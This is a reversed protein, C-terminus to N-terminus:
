LTGLIGFLVYMNHERKTISFLIAVALINGLTMGSNQVATAKGRNASIVYDNILPNATICVMSLQFATRLFIFMPESIMTGALPMLYTSVSGLLLLGVITRKRGVIDYIVGSLILAPISFLSAVTAATSQVGSAKDSEYGFYNPAILLYYMEQLADAASFLNLLLLLPIAILNAKTVM